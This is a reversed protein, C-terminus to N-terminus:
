TQLSMMHNGFCVHSRIGKLETLTISDTDTNMKIEKTLIMYQYHGEGSHGAMAM